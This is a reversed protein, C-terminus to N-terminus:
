QAAAGAPINKDPPINYYDIVFQALKRFAPVVTQGALTALRPRELKIFIVFQPDSVPGFGIYTHNYEDLYGGGRPNPIQATGTKGAIRHQPLAAVAAKEVASEMMSAVAHATKEDMVRGVAYPQTKANTFPRMLLGGNAISGFARVLQVPTVATGQGFAATAYDIDQANKRLLNEINGSVEDPLDVGTKEGFGFRRVYQLFAERGTKQGAYVAGTNISQEIVNTMTVRGHAKQDWNTIRKGNLTVSGTDLYVTEPTIKGADIGAVMTLPKFVSGPEYLNQAAPNIFNKLPSEGYANPDFDPVNALARIAGTKPDAVIVTGSDADFQSVLGAIRQEAEAQINRDVTLVVDEGDALAMDYLKEIGYLGAPTTHEDNVGVFGLLHSGLKGYSYVRYQKQDVHVGPLKLASVTEIMEEPARDVLLRFLSPGGSLTERLKAEDWDIAPALLAATESVDGIEKPVAYVIPFKRNEAVPIVNGNKDAFSIRGRTANLAAQIENLAHVRETYYAGNRIQLRYINAGLLSFLGVFLTTTILPRIKM